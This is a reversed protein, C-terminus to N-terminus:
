IRYDNSSHVFGDVPAKKEGKGVQKTRPSPTKKRCVGVWRVPDDDRPKNFSSMSSSSIFSLKTFNTIKLTLPKLSVPPRIPSEILLFIERRGPTNHTLSDADTPPHAVERSRSYTLPPRLSCVSAFLGGRGGRSRSTIIM